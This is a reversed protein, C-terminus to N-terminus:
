PELEIAQVHAPKRGRGLRFDHVAHLWRAGVKGCAGARNDVVVTQGWTENLKQGLLRTVIDTAGGPAFPVIIRVSKAPYSQAYTAGGPSLVVAAALVSALRM